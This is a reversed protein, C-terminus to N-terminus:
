GIPDIRAQARWRRVANVADAFRPSPPPVVLAERAGIVVASRGTPRFGDYVAPPEPDILGITRCRVRTAIHPLDRSIAPLSTLGLAFAPRASAEQDM